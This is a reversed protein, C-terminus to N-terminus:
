AKGTQSKCVPGNLTRGPMRKLDIRYGPTITGDFLHRQPNEMGAESLTVINFGAETGPQLLGGGAIGLARAGNATGLKLIESAPLESHRSHLFRMESWISLDPNSARSDTGIAVNIGRRLMERWPHTGNQMAAHTRPCYVISINPHQSIFDQESTELLNGHALLVRPLHALSRLYHMPRRDRPIVDSRWIGMGTFLEVLPGSGQALLQLEAPSEALHMVVPVAYEAALDCLGEFLKPHLSYPAHPSLGLHKMGSSRGQELFQKAAELQVDVQEPRLGLFERFFHVSPSKQQLTLDLMWNSTAIEALASTGSTECEDLGRRVIEDISEVRARRSQIVNAIWSSFERRPEIPQTLDSFELHTHANILGPVLAVDGLDIVPISAGPLEVIRGDAIAIKGNKQPPGDGPFVWRAQLCIM